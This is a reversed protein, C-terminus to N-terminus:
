VREGDSEDGHGRWRAHAKLLMLGPKLGHNKKGGNQPVIPGRRFYGDLETGM